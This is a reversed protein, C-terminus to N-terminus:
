ETLLAKMVVGSVDSYREPITATDSLRYSIGSGIAQEVVKNSLRNVGGNPYYFYIGVVVSEASEGAVFTMSIDYAIGTSVDCPATTCNTLEMTVLASSGGLFIDFKKLYARIQSLKQAWVADLPAM